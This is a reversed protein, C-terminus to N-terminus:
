RHQGTAHARRIWSAVTVLTSYEWDAMWGVIRLDYAGLEVGAAALENLILAQNEELHRARRADDWPEAARRNLEESSRMPETNIPGDPIRPNPTTM